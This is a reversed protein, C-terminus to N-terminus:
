KDIVGSLSIPDADPDFPEDAPQLFPNTMAEEAITTSPGHGPIVEYDGPLTLLKRNISDMLVDYDGYEMDTRGISGRFLVDGSFVLKDDDDIYAVSGVSHGPVSFIRWDIGGASISEQGSIDTVEFEDFPHAKFGLRKATERHMNMIAVDKKDMYVKAGTARSLPGAGFVHDFHGHTILIADVELANSKLYELLIGTEGEYFMGPDIVACGKAGDKWVVACNEEM